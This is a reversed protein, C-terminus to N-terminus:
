GSELSLPRQLVGTGMLVRWCYAGRLEVASLAPIPLTHMRCWPIPLTHGPERLTTSTPLTKSVEASSMVVPTTAAGNRCFSGLQELAGSAALLSHEISLRPDLAPEPLRHLLQDLKTGQRWIRPPDEGFVRARRNAIDEIISLTHAIM